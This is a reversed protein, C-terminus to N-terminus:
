GAFTQDMLKSQGTERSGSFQKMTCASILASGALAVSLVILHRSM